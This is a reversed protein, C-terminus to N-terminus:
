RRAVAGRCAPGGARARDRLARLRAPALPPGARLERDRPARSGPVGVAEGALQAQAPHDRVRRQDAQQYAELYLRHVEGFREPVASAAVLEAATLRGTRLRRQSGRRPSRELVGADCLVADLADMGRCVRDPVARLDADTIERASTYGRHLMIRVGLLHGRRRVEDGAWTVAGIREQLWLLEVNLGDEAPLWALWQSLRARTLLDWGPRVARCLVLAAPGWAWRKAPALRGEGAEWAAWRAAEVAAWRDQLTVGSTADLLALISDIARRMDRAREGRLRWGAELAALRRQLAGREYPRDALALVSM